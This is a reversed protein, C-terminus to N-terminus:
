KMARYVCPSVREVEQFGLSRLFVTVRASEIEYSYRPALVDHIGLVTNSLKEHRRGLAWKLGLMPVGMLLAVVRLLTRPYRYSFPFIMRLALSKVAHPEYLYLYLLGGKKLLTAPM